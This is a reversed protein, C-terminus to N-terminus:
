PLQGEFSDRGFPTANEDLEFVELHDRVNTLSALRRSERRIWEPAQISHSPSAADLERRRGAAVPDFAFPDVDDGVPVFDEGLDGYDYQNPNEHPPLDDDNFPLSDQSMRRQASQLYANSRPTSPDSQSPLHSISPAAGRAPRQTGTYEVFPALPTPPQQIRPTPTQAPSIATDSDASLRPSLQTLQPLRPITVSPPRPITVSPPRPIAPQSPVTGDKSGSGLRSRAPMADQRGVRAVRAGASPAFDLVSQRTGTGNGSSHRLESRVDPSPPPPETRTVPPVFPEAYDRNSSRPAVPRASDVQKDSARRATPPATDRNAARPGTESPRREPEADSNAPRVVPHLLSLSADRKARRMSPSTGAAPTILDDAVSLRATPSPEISTSTPEEATLTRKEPEDFIAPMRDPGGFPLDLPQQPEYEHAFQIARLEEEAQFERWRKEDSTVTPDHPTDSHGLQEPVEPTEKRPQEDEASSSRRVTPSLEKTGGGSRRFHQEEAPRAALPLTGAAVVAREMLDKRLLAHLARTTRLVKAEAAYLEDLLAQGSAIKAADASELSALLDSQVFNSVQEYHTLADAAVNAYDSLEELNRQTQPLYVNQLLKAVHEDHRQTTSKKAQATQAQIHRWIRHMRQEATFVDQYATTLFQNMTLIRSRPVKAQLADRNEQLITRRMLVREALSHLTGVVASYLTTGRLLEQGCRLLGLAFALLTLLNIAFATIVISKYETPHTVHPFSRVVMFLNATIAICLLSCSELLFLARHTFPSTAQQVLFLVSMTTAATYQRQSLVTVFAVVVVIVAKRVFSFLEWFWLREVFGCTMVFMVRRAAGDARWLTTSAFLRVFGVFCIPTLVGYVGMWVAAAIRYAGYTGGSTCQVRTDLLLFRELGLNSGMDVQECVLLGACAWLVMPYCVFLSIVFAVALSHLVQGSVSPGLEDEFLFGFTALEDAPPHIAVNSYRRHLQRTKDTKSEVATRLYPINTLKDVIYHHQGTQWSTVAADELRRRSSGRRVTAEFTREIDTQPLVFPTASRSDSRNSLAGSDQPVVLPNRSTARRLGYHRDRDQSLEFSLDTERRGGRAADVGFMMDTARRTSRRRIGTDRIHEGDEEAGGFAFPLDSYESSSFDDTVSVVLPNVSVNRTSRRAQITLPNPVDSEGPENVVDEIVRGTFPTFRNAGATSSSAVEVDEVPFTFGAFRQLVRHSEGPQRAKPTDGSLSALSATRTMRTDAISPEPKAVDAESALQSRHEAEDQFSEVVAVEMAKRVSSARRRRPTGDFDSDATLSTELQQEPESSEPSPTGPLSGAVLERRYISLNQASLPVFNALSSDDVGGLGMAVSEFKRPLLTQQRYYSTYYVLGRILLVAALIAFLIFPFALAFHFRVYVDSGFLCGFVHFRFVDVTYWLVEFFQRVFPPVLDQEILWGLFAVVQLHTILMRVVAIGFLAPGGLGSRCASVVAYVALLSALTVMCLLVLVLLWWSLAFPTTCAQCENWAWAYGRACAACRPGTYGAACTGDANCAFTGPGCSYFTFSRNGGHWFGRAPQVVSTGDCVGNTPCMACTFTYPVAYEIVPVCREHQLAPTTYSRIVPRQWPSAFTMTYPVAFADRVVYPAFEYRGASTLAGTVQHVPYTIVGRADKTAVPYSVILVPPLVSADTIINGAVDAVHAVPAPLLPGASTVPVAWTALVSTANGLVVQAPPGAIVIVTVTGQMQPAQVVSVTMVYSGILPLSLVVATYDATGNQLLALAVSSNAYTLAGSPSLPRSVATAVLSPPQLRGVYNRNGDVLHAVFPPVRTAVDAVVPGLVSPEVVLAAPNGVVVLNGRYRSYIWSDHSYEMYTPSPVTLPLLTNPCVAETASVYTAPSMSRVIGSPSILRCAAWPSPVFGSGRLTVTVAAGALAQAGDGQSTVISTMVVSPPRRVWVNSATTRMGGLVINVNGSGCSTRLSAATANCLLTNNDIFQSPTLVGDGFDCKADVFATFGVGHVTTPTTGFSDLVAPEVRRVGFLNVYVIALSTPSQVTVLASRASSNVQMSVVLPNQPLPALAYYMLLELTTTNVQLAVITRQVTRLNTMFLAMDYAEDYAGITANLYMVTRPLVISGAESFTGQAESLSVKAIVSATGNTSLICGMTTGTWFHCQAAFACANRCASIALTTGNVVMRRVTRTANNTAYVEVIWVGSTAGTVILYGRDFQVRGVNVVTTPVTFTPFGRFTFHVSRNHVIALTETKVDAAAIAGTTAFGGVNQQEFSRGSVRVIHSFNTYPVIAKYIAIDTSGLWAVLQGNGAQLSIVPAGFDIQTLPVPVASSNEQRFVGIPNNGGFALQAALDVAIVGRLGPTPSVIPLAAYGFVSGGMNPMTCSEGIHTSACGSCDSGNWYGTLDSRFCVCGTASNCSGHGSCSCAQDCLPGWYGDVCRDCNTGTFHSTGDNRCECAGTLANCQPFLFGARRCAPISCTVDCAVNFWGADCKCSGDGISGDNCSGHGSCLAGSANRPCAVDCSRGSYGPSCVCVTGSTTGTGLTCSVTCNAGSYGSQCVDCTTGGWYGKAEDSYCSCQGSALCTGRSLCPNGAPGPCSLACSEGFYGVFCTCVGSTGCNGNNSCPTEAGGPCILECSGGYRGKDCICAGNVCQGNAACSYQRGKVVTTPCVLECNSGSYGTVCVCLGTNVDCYGRSGCVGATTGYGPCTGSCQPGWFGAACTPAPICASDVINCATGCVLFFTDPPEPHCQTCTGNFCVGRGNCVVGGILPCPITCATSAHTAVCRDCISGTWFGNAADAYCQCTGTVPSCVGHNSCPNGALGDCVRDCLVGWYGRHCTCTGNGGIGDNCAGHVCAPCAACSSGFSGSDCVECAGRASRAFRGTCSCTGDTVNCTGRGCTSSVGDVTGTPCVYQCWPGVYGVGCTCVGTGSMADSCSGHGSCVPVTGNARGCPACNPGYYGSDCVTCNGLLDKAYGANCTCRGLGDIGDSCQGNGNCVGGPGDSGVCRMNCRAGFYGTTCTACGTGGWSGAVSDQLCQCGTGNLGDNCYGHGSCTLQGGCPTLCSAGHYGPACSGCYQGSFFGLVTSTFCVCRGTTPGCVGNGSCPGSGCDVVPVFGVTVNPDSYFVFQTSAPSTLEVAGRRGAVTANLPGPAYAYCVMVSSSVVTHNTCPVKVDGFNLSLNLYVNFNRGHVTFTQLGDLACDGTSPFADVCGTVYDIGYGVVPAPPMIPVM